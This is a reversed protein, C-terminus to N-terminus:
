EEESLIETVAEFVDEGANERFMELDPNPNLDFVQNGRLCVEFVPAGIKRNIKEVIEKQTDSINVYNLSEKSFRWTDSDDKLAVKKDDIVLIRLKEGDNYEHFILIDEEYESGEAFGKIEENDGLLKTETEEMEELKRGVLPSELEKMINRAAKETAATVTRPAPIDKEHLIYYLYNKKAMLFYSTSNLNCNLRSENIIELLVRGFVANKPPIEIFVADYDTISNGNTKVDTEGNIVEPAIQELEAHDIEDFVNQFEDYEKETIMLLKIKIM